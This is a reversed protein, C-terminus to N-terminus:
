LYKARLWGSAQEVALVLIFISLIIMCALDYSFFDMAVKLEIGIGGAGVLGLVVSSRTAKELAFLSTAIFSPMVQPFVAGLLIGMRSAGMASLAEQPGDDAEEMAEAFFRACFGITDIMIALTGAAPGLGVAIVFVLAWILDPVTRFFAILGRFAVRIAAHPAHKRSAMVALPVSFFVGLATGVAAMQFTEFLSLLVPELRSLDPPFMQGVLRALGPGGSVIREWSLGVQNFSVLIFAAAAVALAFGMPNIREGFRGPPLSRLPAPAETTM